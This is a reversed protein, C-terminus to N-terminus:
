EEREEEDEGGWVRMVAGEGERLEVEFAGEGEGERGGRMQKRRLRRQKLSGASSSKPLDSLATLIFGKAEPSASASRSATSPPGTSGPRWRPGWPRIGRPGVSARGWPSAQGHESLSKGM